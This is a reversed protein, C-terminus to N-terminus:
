TTKMKIKANINRMKEEVRKKLHELKYPYRFTYDIAHQLGRTPEVAVARWFVYRVPIASQKIDAEHIYPLLALAAIRLLFSFFFIIQIGHMFLFSSDRLSHVIFSGILTGSFIAIGRLFTHNAIYVPRKEAPTVDLLFNFAALEFGSWAFSAFFEIALLHWPSTAFIWFFPVACVLIANIFIIKREGFRDILSGWYPHFIVTVFAGFAVIAGFWVYGIALDDLMYVVFFPGAINVAFYMMSIFLTFIVLNRNTEFFDKLGAINLSLSHKYHYAIKTQPEKIRLFIVITVIALLFSIAFIPAFGYALMIGAAFTAVMGSLGAVMNRNGFYKGRIKDPVMDGVMSAWAPNNLALFFSYFAMLVIFLAVNVIGLLAMAVIPLWLLRAMLMSVVWISKRSAYQTLLAGPVQAFTAAINRASSLLGVEIASAKMAIAFPIIYSNVISNAASEPIAYITNYHLSKKDIKPIKGKKTSPM